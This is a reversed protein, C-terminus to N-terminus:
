KCNIEMVTQLVTTLERLGYPKNLLGVFGYQTYNSTTLEAAYGSSMIAKVKEDLALLNRLTDLGGMGGPITLDLIVVSFPCESNKALQYQEIAAVGDGVAVVEFHLRTLLRTLTTRIAIEDDMILIRGRSEPVAAYLQVERSNTISHADLQDGIKQNKLTLVQEAFELLEM